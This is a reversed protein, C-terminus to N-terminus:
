FGGIHATIASFTQNNFIHNTFISVIFMISAVLIKRMSSLAEPNEM